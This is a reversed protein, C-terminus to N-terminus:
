YKRERTLASTFCSERHSRAEVTEHIVRFASSRGLKSCPIVYRKRRAWTQEWRRGRPGGIRLGRRLGRCWDWRWSRMRGRRELRELHKKSGNSLKLGEKLLPFRSREKLTPASFYKFLEGHEWKNIGNNRPLNMQHHLWQRNQKQEATFLEQVIHKIM